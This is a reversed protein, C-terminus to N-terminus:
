SPVHSMTDTPSPGVNGRGRINRRVRPAPPPHTVIPAEANAARAQRREDEPMESLAVKGDTTVVFERGARCKAFGRDVLARMAMTNALGSVAVAEGDAAVLAELMQRTTPRMPPPTNLSKRPHTSM